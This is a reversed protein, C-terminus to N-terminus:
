PESGSSCPSLMHIRKMKHASTRARRHPTPRPPQSTPQQSSPRTPPHTPCLSVWGSLQATGSTSGPQNWYGRCFDGASGKVVAVVLYPMSFVFAIAAYCVMMPLIGALAECFGPPERASDQGAPYAAEAQRQVFGSPKLASLARATPLRPLSPARGPGDSEAPASDYPVAARQGDPPLRQSEARRAAM